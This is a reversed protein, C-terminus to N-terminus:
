VKIRLARIANLVALVMVGTDAFVALWMSSIGFLSLILVLVKIGIAFYINEYVIRMCKKAYIIAKASKLPDDDMLVVDAAEIAADSGLAGMAVGIDSLMIAPADNIGDGVFMLNTKDEKKTLMEKVINVKDTLLLKAHVESIGLEDKIHEAVKYDDGTLMTTNKIGIKNLTEITAKSNDKIIDNILIHGVYENNIAVHVITGFDDECTITKINAEEFLKDNGVLIHKKDVIAKIGKGSIESVSDIRTKDIAKGYKRVISKAIPHNSLCESYAAYEIVEENSIPSHHIGYVEFVGKTMTGTKDFVVQKVKSLEEVYNSGKILIGNHSAGGIAAFFSLPISIVLACPCSIVLFTLAKFVWENINSPNGVLINFLPPIIAVVVASICIIPTYYRAFKSIFDESKSKNSTANEVLNLIKSVTSEGFEKTTKVEIVSTMNISGSTVEDKVGVSKPTAEGTLAATNLSTEGKVIIGDLPIKDGVKVLIISGIPVDDPDVKEYENNDKVLYAYDPRIDMLEAINKRSRGIAISQFLEGIQYVLMVMVGESYDGLIIAGITAVTMLFNEDFVQKHVIGKFAKKIIDFGVTVYAIAYIVLQAIDIEIFKAIVLLTIAIIIRYVNRKQKKTLSYKVTM